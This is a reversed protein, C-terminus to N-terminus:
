PNMEKIKEPRKKQIEIAHKRQTENPHFADVLRMTVDVQKAKPHKELETKNWKSILSTVGAAKQIEPLESAINALIDDVPATGFGQKMLKSQWTQGAAELRSVEKTDGGEKAKKLQARMEKMKKEQFPSGAYAVAVARSDYVGIREQTEAARQQAFSPLNLGTAVIAASVGVLTVISKTLYYKTNM